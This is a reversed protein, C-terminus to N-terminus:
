SHNTVSQALEKMENSIDCNKKDIESQMFMSALYANLDHFSFVVPEIDQPRLTELNISQFFCKNRNDRQGIAQLGL